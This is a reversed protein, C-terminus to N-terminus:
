GDRARRQTFPPGGEPPLRLADAKYSLDEHPHFDRSRGVLSCTKHPALGRGDIAQNPRTAYGIGTCTVVCTRSPRFLWLQGVTHHRLPLPSRPPSCVLLGSRFSHRRDRFVRRQATESRISAPLRGM